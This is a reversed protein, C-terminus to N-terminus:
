QCTCRRIVPTQGLRFGWDNVTITGTNSNASATSSLGVVIGTHGTYGPGAHGIAIIDGAKAPGQVVPWDPVSMNPDGLEGATAARNNVMPPSSGGETASQNVFKNCKFETIWGFGGRWGPKGWGSEGEHSKAANATADPSCTCILGTPDIYSVPNGGVYSYTNVGGVLGIPDSHIYRGLVPDYYRNWNYWLGSESDVYQGPFAINFGGITDTTVARDFAANAARWIIGGTANTLVEPRGLHDNHSAYFTGGRVIGLLEGGVWVYNTNSAGSEALLEGSPGYISATAGGAIKYARQNFANNRYDGVVAGNVYVKSLRNFTDYEYTRSGDNRSESGLNGAQDYYLSRTKGNGSWASLQNNQPNM